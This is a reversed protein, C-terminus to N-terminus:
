ISGFYGAANRALCPTFSEKLFSKEDDDDFNPQNNEHNGTSVMRNNIIWFSPMTKNKGYKGQLGRTTYRGATVGLSVMESETALLNKHSGPALWLRM